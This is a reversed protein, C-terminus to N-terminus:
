TSLMITISLKKGSNRAEHCRKFTQIMQMLTHAAETSLGSNLFRQLLAAKNEPKQLMLAKGRLILKEESALTSEIRKM